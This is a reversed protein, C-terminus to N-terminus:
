LGFKYAAGFYFETADVDTIAYEDGNLKHEVEGYYQYKLGLNLDVRDNLAFNVGIMASYSLDFVSDSMKPMSIDGWINAFGIGLGAYPAIAGAYENFLYVNLMNAWVDFDYNVGRKTQDGGVYSTEFEIKVHDSLRNGIVAGFGFNDERVNSNGDSHIDYKFAIRENKHIRIGIYNDRKEPTTVSATNDIHEYEDYYNDYTNYDDAYEEAAAVMPLLAAMLVAIKKM